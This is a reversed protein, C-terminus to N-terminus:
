RVMEWLARRCIIYRYLLGEIKDHERPEFYDTSYVESKQRLNGMETIMDNLAVSYSKLRAMDTDIRRDSLSLNFSDKTQVTGIEKINKLPKYLTRHTCSSALLTFLAALMLKNITNM